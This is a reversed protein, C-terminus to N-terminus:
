ASAPEEEQAPPDAVVLDNVKYFHTPQILKAIQQQQIPDLTSVDIYFRVSNGRLSMVNHVINLLYDIQKKKQGEPSFVLFNKRHLIKHIKIIERVRETFTQHSAQVEVEKKRQKMEGENGKEMVKINTTELIFKDSFNLKAYDGDSRRDKLDDRLKSIFRKEKSGLRIDHLRERLAKCNRACKHLTQIDEEFVNRLPKNLVRAMMELNSEMKAVLPAESKHYTLMRCIDLIDETVSSYHDMEDRLRSLKHIAIAFEDLTTSTLKENTLVNGKEEDDRLIKFFETVQGGIVSRGLCLKRTDPVSFKLHSPLIKGPVANKVATETLIHDVCAITLSRSFEAWVRNCRRITQIMKMLIPVEKKPKEKQLDTDFENSFILSLKDLDKMALPSPLLNYRVLKEDVLFGFHAGICLLERFKRPIFLNVGRARLDGTFDKYHSSSVYAVYNQLYKYFVSKKFIVSAEKSALNYIGKQFLDWLLVNPNEAEPFKTASKKVDQLMKFFAQLHTKYVEQFKEYEEPLQLKAKNEILEPPLMPDYNENSKEEDWGKDMMNALINKSRLIKVLQGRSIPIDKQVVVQDYLMEFLNKKYTRMLHNIKHDTLRKVINGVHEGMLSAYGKAVLNPNNQFTGLKPLDESNFLVVDRGKRPRLSVDLGLRHSLLTRACTREVPHLSQTGLDFRFSVVEPLSNIIYIQELEKLKVNEKGEIVQILRKQIEAVIKEYPFMLSRLRQTIGIVEDRGFEIMLLKRILEVPKDLLAYDESQPDWLSFIDFNRLHLQEFIKRAVMRELEVNEPIPENKGGAGKQALTKAFGSSAKQPKAPPATASDERGKKAMQILFKFFEVRDANPFEGEDSEVFPKLKQFIPLTNQFLIQEIDRQETLFFCRHFLKYDQEVRQKLVFNRLMQNFRVRTGKIEKKASKDCDALYKYIYGCLLAKNKVNAQDEEDVFILFKAMLEAPNIGLTLTDFLSSMASVPQDGEQFSLIFSQIAADYRSCLDALLCLNIIEPENLPPFPKGSHITKVKEQIEEDLINLEGITRMSTQFGTKRTKRELLTAKLTKDAEIMPPVSAFKLDIKAQLQRQIAATAGAIVIGRNNKILAEMILPPLLPEDKIREIKLLMTSNPQQLISNQWRRVAYLDACPNLHRISQSKQNKGQRNTIKLESVEGSFNEQNFFRLFEKVDPDTECAVNSMFRIRYKRKPPGEETKPATEKETPEM